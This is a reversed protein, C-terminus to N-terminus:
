RYRRWVFLMSNKIGLERECWVTKIVEEEIKKKM